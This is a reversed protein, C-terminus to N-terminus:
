CWTLEPNGRTPSASWEVTVLIGDITRDGQYTKM